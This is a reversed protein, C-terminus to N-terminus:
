GEHRPMAELQEKTADIYLRLDDGGTERLVTVQEFPMSVSHAGIGLFGGVDIVAHTIKGEKTVVLESISGIKDDGPGYVSASELDNATLASNEARAYGDHSFPSTATQTGHMPNNMSSNM